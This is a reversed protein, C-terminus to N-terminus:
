KGNIAEFFTDKNYEFVYKKSDEQAKIGISKLLERDKYLKEICNQLSEINGIEFILGTENSKILLNAQSYSSVLAPTGAIFAEILSGSTGEGYYKTPLCFLDHKAITEIADSQSIVGQYKITGSLFSNFISMQKNDLQLEGFINLAIKLGKQQLARVAYLLDFIGKNECVRSAFIISLPESTNYTKPVIKTNRFNAVLKVNDIEYFKKYLNFLTENQPIILDLKSLEVRMKSDSKGFFDECNIFKDVQNMPLDKIVSDITGIGLPCFIIRSRKEKNKKNVIPIMMRCGKPGAMIIITDGRKTAKSIQNLVSLFRFKWGDLDIVNVDYGHELLVETYLRIKLRGGDHVPQNHANNGIITIRKM